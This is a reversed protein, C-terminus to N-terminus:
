PLQVYRSAPKPWSRLKVVLRCITLYRPSFLRALKGFSAFLSSTISDCFFLAASPTIVTVTLHLPRRLPLLLSPHCLSAFSSTDLSALCALSPGSRRSAYRPSMVRRNFRPMLISGPGPSNPRVLLQWGFATMKRSATPEQAANRRWQM